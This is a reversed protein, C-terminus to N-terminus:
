VNAWVGNFYDRHRQMTEEEKGEEGRATQLTYMGDFQGIKLAQFISDFPTGGTGPEVSPGNGTSRDKLHVHSILKTKKILFDAYRFSQDLAHMNGTDYTLNVNPPLQTLFETLRAPWLDFEISFTIEPYAVALTPLWVRVSNWNALLSLSAGELFPLTIHFINNKRCAKAIAAVLDRPHETTMLLDVCVSRVGMGVLNRKFLPNKLNTVIWEIHNFKMQRGKFIEAAWNKEPFAQIYGDVPASLRGQTFGLRLHDVM